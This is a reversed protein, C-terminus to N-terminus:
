DKLVEQLIEDILELSYADKDLTSSMKEGDGYTGEVGYNMNREAHKKISKWRLRLRRKSEPILHEPKM